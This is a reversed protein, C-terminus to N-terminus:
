IKRETNIMKVQSNSSQTSYNHLSKSIGDAETPPKEKAYKVIQKAEAESWGACHILYKMAYATGKKAVTDAMREAVARQHENM